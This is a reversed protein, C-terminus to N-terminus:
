LLFARRFASTQLFSSDFILSSRRRNPLGRDEIRSRRGIDLGSVLTRARESPRKSGHAAGETPRKSHYAARAATLEGSEQDAPLAHDPGAPADAADAPTVTPPGRDTGARRSEAGNRASWSCWGPRARRLRHDRRADDRLM